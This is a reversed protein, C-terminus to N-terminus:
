SVPPSLRQLARQLRQLAEKLETEAVAGISFRCWGTAEKVGFAYFPVMAVQAEELIYHYLDYPTNLVGGEATRWRLINLEVSLYIGGQPEISDVPLGQAKLQQIGAHLTDLRSRIARDMEQRFANREDEPLNLYDATALQEPKPAWAGLHGLVNSMPAIVEEPGTVWGVRVGTAALSKSIGDISIVYNRLEPVLQLPHVHRRGYALQQYIQDYMIYLPKEGRRQRSLNETLVLQCVERLAGEDYMTGTPNMPSCLSLLTANGIHPAIQAATPQFNTEATTRIEVTRAGVIHSYHNNNWSPVPYVVLDGADVITSYVGYILPRAGGGILIEDTSYELGNTSRIFASVAKRLEPMGMSPPYNTQARRYQDVIRSTLQPPIPFLEPKFDGVTFDAVSFGDARMRRVENALRLIESGILEQAMHGVLPASRRALNM